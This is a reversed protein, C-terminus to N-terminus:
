REELDCKVRLIRDVRLAGGSRSEILIPFEKRAVKGRTIRTIHMLCSPSNNKFSHRPSHSFFASTLYFDDFQGSIEFISALM